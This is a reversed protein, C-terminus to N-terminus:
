VLVNSKEQAPTPLLHHVKWVGLFLGVAQDESFGTVPTHIHFKFVIQRTYCLGEALLHMM